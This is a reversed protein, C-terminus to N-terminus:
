YQGVIKVLPSGPATNIAYFGEGTFSAAPDHWRGRFVVDGADNLLPPGFVSSLFFTGAPQGPVPFAPNGSADLASDVLVRLPQGQQHLYLGYAGGTNSSFQSASFATFVVDGQANIVPAEVTSLGRFVYPAPRGPVSDRGTSLSVAVPEITIVAASASVGILCLLSAFSISNRM